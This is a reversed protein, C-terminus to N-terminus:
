TKANQEEVLKQSSIVMEWGFIELWFFEYGNVQKLPTRCEQCIQDTTGLDRKRIREISM